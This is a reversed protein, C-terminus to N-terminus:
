YIPEAVFYVPCIHGFIRCRRPDKDNDPLPFQEILPGYPCYKIEWCPKCVAKVRRKADIKGFWETFVSKHQESKKAM